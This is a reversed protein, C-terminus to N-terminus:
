EWKGDKYWEMIGRETMRNGRTIDFEEKTLETMDHSQRDVKVFAEKDTVWKYGFYDAQIYNDSHHMGYQLHFYLADPRHFWSNCAWHSYSDSPKPAKKPRPYKRNTVAQIALQEEVSPYTDNLTKEDAEM